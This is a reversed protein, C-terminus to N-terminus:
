KGITQIESVWSTKRGDKTNIKKVKYGNTDTSSGYILMYEKYNTYKTEKDWIKQTNYSKKAITVMNKYLKYLTEDDLDRILVKPYIKTMYLAESKIYNGVGSVVKQNMLPITIEKSDYARISKLWKNKTIRTDLLDPGLNSLKKDLDKKNNWIFWNGFNRMDNYYIKKGDSLYIMVRNHDNEEKTFRGTMGFSIGIYWKNDLEIWLFKGKNRVNLVKLPLRTELESLNTIKKKIYKGSLVRIDEIRRTKIMEDLYDRQLHIEPGEPM